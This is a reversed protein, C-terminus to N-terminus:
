KDTRSKRILGDSAKRLDKLLRVGELATMKAFRLRAHWSVNETSQIKVFQHIVQGRSKNWQTLRSRLEEDLQVFGEVQIMLKGITSVKVPSDSHHEVLSELRDCILSELLAIAEIYFGEDIARKIRAYTKAYLLHKSVGLEVSYKARYKM